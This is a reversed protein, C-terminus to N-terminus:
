RKNVVFLNNLLPAKENKETNGAEIKFFRARKSKNRQKYHATRKLLKWYSEDLKGEKLKAEEALHTFLASAKSPDALTHLIGFIEKDTLALLLQLKKVSFNPIDEIPFYNLFQFANKSRNVRDIFKISLAFQENLPPELKSSNVLLALTKLSLKFITDLLYRSSSQKIGVHEFVRKALSIM